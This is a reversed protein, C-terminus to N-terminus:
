GGLAELGLLQRAESIRAAVQEAELSLKAAVQEPTARKSGKFM